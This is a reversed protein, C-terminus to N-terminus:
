FKGDRKNWKCIVSLRFSLIQFTQLTIVAVFDVPSPVCIFVNSSSTHEEEKAPSNCCYEKSKDATLMKKERVANRPFERIKLKNCKVLYRREMRRGFEQITTQCCSIQQNTKYALRENSSKSNRNNM